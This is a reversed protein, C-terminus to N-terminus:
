GGDDYRLVVALPDRNLRKPKNCESYIYELFEAIEPRYEQIMEPSLAAELKQLEAALNKDGIGFAKAQKIYFLAKQIDNKKLAYAKALPWSPKLM